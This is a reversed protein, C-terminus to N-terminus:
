FNQKGSELYNYDNSELLEAICEDSNLYEYESELQRYYWDALDRFLQNIENEIFDNKWDVCEGSQMTWDFSMTNSHEYRTNYRTIYCELKYGYDKMHSVIGQVISHLQVGTPAHEKIAKLCGAKYSYDGIFNAGDGQSCFGSFGSDINTFGIMELIFQFDSTSYDFWDYDLHDSGRYQDIAIQKSQESLESFKFIEITVQKM